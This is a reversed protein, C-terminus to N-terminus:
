LFDRNNVGVERSKAYMYGGSEVDKWYQTFEAKVGEIYREVEAFAATVEDSALLKFYVDSGNFETDVHKDFAEDFISEFDDTDLYSEVNADVIAIMEEAIKRALM